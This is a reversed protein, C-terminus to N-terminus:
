DDLLGGTKLLTLIVEIDESSINYGRMTASSLDINKGRSSLKIEHEDIFSVLKQFDYDYYTEKILGEIKRTAEQCESDFYISDTDNMKRQEELFQRDIDPIVGEIGESFMDTFDFAKSTFVGAELIDIVGKIFPLDVKTKKVLHGNKLLFARSRKNDEFFSSETAEIVKVIDRGDATPFHELIFDLIVEEQDDYSYEIVSMMLDIKHNSM